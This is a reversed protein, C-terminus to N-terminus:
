PEVLRERRNTFAFCFFGCIFVIMIALFVIITALIGYPIDPLGDTRDAQKQMANAIAHHIGQLSSQILENPQNNRKSVVDNVEYGAYMALAYHGAKSLIKGM